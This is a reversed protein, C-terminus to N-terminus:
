TSQRKNFMIRHIFPNYKSTHMRLDPETYRLQWNSACAWICTHTQFNSVQLNCLTLDSLGVMGSIANLAPLTALRDMNCFCTQESLLVECHCSYSIGTIKNIVQYQSIGCRLM